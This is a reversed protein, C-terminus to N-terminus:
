FRMLLQLPLEKDRRVQSGGWTRTWLWDGTIPSCKGIWADVGTSSNQYSWGTVVLNHEQDFSLGYAKDWVEGGWTLLQPQFYPSFPPFSEM